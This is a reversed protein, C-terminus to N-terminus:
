IGFLLVYSLFVTFGFRLSRNLVVRGREAYTLLIGVGFSLVIFVAALLLGNEFTFANRWVRSFSWIWTNGFVVLVHATYIHLTKRSLESYFREFRRTLNFVVSYAGILILSLGVKECFLFPSSIYFDHPPLLHRGYVGATLALITVVIGLEGIRQAFKWTDNERLLALAYSGIAAGIFLFGSHPFISFFSGGKYTLYHAFFPPLFAFWDVRHVWPTAAAILTGVITASAIFARDSRSLAMVGVLMLLSVGIINLTGVRFFAFWRDAPLVFLDWVRNGPFILMYDVLILLLARRIRKRLIRPLVRGREDRRIGVFNVMGSILLFTPSTLGRLWQYIMGFFGDQPIEAPIVYTGVTHGQIMMFVAMLRAFDLVAFRPHRSVVAPPVPRDESFDTM